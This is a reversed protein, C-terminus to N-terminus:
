YRVVARIGYTRPEGVRGVIGSAFSATSTVYEKDALNRGFLIL